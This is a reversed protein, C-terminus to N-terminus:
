SEKSAIINCGANQDKLRTQNRKNPIANRAIFPCTKLDNVDNQEPTIM